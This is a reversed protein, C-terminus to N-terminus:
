YSRLKILEMSTCTTRFNTWFLRLSTMYLDTLDMLGNNVQGPEIMGKWYVIGPVRVGGEWTTGKGGRWPHYGSDPWADENAGNDSTFVILTNELV